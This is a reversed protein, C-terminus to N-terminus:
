TSTAIKKCRQNSENAFKAVKRFFSLGSFVLTSYVEVLDAGMNIREFVDQETMVGGVSIVLKKSKESGLHEITTQLVHKSSEAVPFGSIGGEIPFIKQTNRKLTTNTLVYGDINLQVTTDLVQKLEDRSLDPSLKILLPTKKLLKNQTEILPKLFQNLYKAKALDRLGQTNPSSINIVFADAVANFKEILLQYDLYALENTTNRNKGINILLPLGASKKYLIINQLVYEFGLSPFGMKNWLAQDILSRDIIKGPNASQPKPTITGIELFGCGLKEWATLSQANKDLGGAIGIRNKFHIDKWIFSGWEPTRKPLLKSYLRIMEPSLDHALQPPIWLWPKLLHSSM